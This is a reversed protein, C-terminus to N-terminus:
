PLLKKRLTGVIGLLGSGLLMLSGPEPVSSVSSGSLEMQYPWYVNPHLGTHNCCYEGAVGLATQDESYSWIASSGSGVFEVWYRTNGALTYPSALNFRYDALSPTLSSDNLTGFAAFRAM